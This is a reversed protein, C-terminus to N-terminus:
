KHLACHSNFAIKGQEAEAKTYPNISCLNDAYSVGAMASVAIAAIWTKM